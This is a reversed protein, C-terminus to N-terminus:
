DTYQTGVFYEAANQEQPVPYIWLASKMNLRPREHLTVLFKDPLQGGASWGQPLVNFLCRDTKWVELRNVRQRKVVVM